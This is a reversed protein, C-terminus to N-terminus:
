PAAARGLEESARLLEMLVSKAEEDTAEVWKVRRALDEVRAHVNRLRGNAARIATVTEEYTAEQSPDCPITWGQCAATYRRRLDADIRGYEQVLGGIIEGPRGNTRAGLDLLKARIAAPYAPQDALVDLAEVCALPMRVVRPGDGCTHTAVKPPPGCSALLLALLAVRLVM